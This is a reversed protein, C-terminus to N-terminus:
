KSAEWILYSAFGISILLMVIFRKWASKNIKRVYEQLENVTNSQAIQLTQAQTTLMLDITKATNELSSEIKITKNAVDTEVSNFNVLLRKLNSNQTEELSQIKRVQDESSIAIKRVLEVFSKEQNEKIMTLKSDFINLTQQQSNKVIDIQKNIDLTVKKNNVEMQQLATNNINIISKLLNIQKTLEELKLKNEDKLEDLEKNIILQSKVIDDLEEKLFLNDVLIRIGRINCRKIYHYLKNDFNELKASSLM